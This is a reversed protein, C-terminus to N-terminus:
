RERRRNAGADPHEAAELERAIEQSQRYIEETTQLVKVALGRSRIVEILDSSSLYASVSWTGDALQHQGHDQIRIGKVAPLGSFAQYKGRIEVLTLGGTVPSPGDPTGTDAATTTTKRPCGASALAALLVVGTAGLKRM